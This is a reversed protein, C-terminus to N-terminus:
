QFNPDISKKRELAQVFVCVCVHIVDAVLANTDLKKKVPLEKTKLKM